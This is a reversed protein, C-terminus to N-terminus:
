FVLFLVILINYLLDYLIYMMGRRMSSHSDRGLGRSAVTVMQMGNARDGTQGGLSYCLM